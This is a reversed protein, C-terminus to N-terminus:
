ACFACDQFSTSSMIVSTPCASLDLTFPRKRTLAVEFLTCTATSLTSQSQIVKQSEYGLILPHPVTRYISTRSRTLSICRCSCTCASLVVNPNPPLHMHYIYNLLLGTQFNELLCQLRERFEVACGRAGKGKYWFLTQTHQSFRDNIKESIGPAVHVHAAYLLMYYESKVTRINVIIICENPVVWGQSILTVVKFPWVWTALPRYITGWPYHQFQVYM